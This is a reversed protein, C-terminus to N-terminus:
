TATSPHHPSACLVESALTMGWSPFLYPSVRGESAPVQFCLLLLRPGLRFTTVAKIRVRPQRQTIGGRRGSPVAARCCCRPASVRLHLKSEAAAMPGLLLLPICCWPPDALPEWRM